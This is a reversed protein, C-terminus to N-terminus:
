KTMEKKLHDLLITYIDKKFSLNSCYYLDYILEKAQEYDDLEPLNSKNTLKELNM